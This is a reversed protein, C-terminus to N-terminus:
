TKGGKKKYDHYTLLLYSYATFALASTIFIGNTIIFSGINTLTQPLTTTFFTYTNAAFDKLAISVWGLKPITLVAKGMIQQESVPTPDPVNNADGKTEFWLVGGQYYINIVRHVINENPTAYQVIDGVQISKTPVSIIIAIDGVEYTPTMSGSAIITPTFGLLGTTTWVGLLGILAMVTWYPLQSKQKRLTRHIQGQLPRTATDLFLFGVTTAVVILMAQAQWPPNPLIPSFWTFLAPIAMYTLSAPLGGLHALYASLITTALTPIFTRILFELIAIPTLMNTYSFVPTGILTILLSILLLTLTSKQKSTTKAIYAITFQQALLPTLLYPFYVALALPTWATPNKGFGLFFSVFILLFIQLVAVTIALQLLQKNTKWINTNEHKSIFIIALIISAWAVAHALFIWHGTLTFPIVLSTFLYVTLILTPILIINKM